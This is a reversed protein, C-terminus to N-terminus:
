CTVALKRALAVIGRKMGRRRAISMGWAKLSCWKKTCTLLAQAGEFLATRMM